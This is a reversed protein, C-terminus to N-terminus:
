DAPEAYEPTVPDRISLIEVEDLQDIVVTAGDYTELNEVPGSQFLMASELVHPDGIVELVYPPELLQGDVEIGGPVDDFSSQAALRYKDNFEMAEAGATRLEQVIDLLHGVSVRGGTETITVRIGPGSVPVLGALINLVEARQETEALAAQRASSETRLDDRRDQLRTLEGQAREATGTLRDLVEILETDRLGAYTDDRQYDEVQVIFAFGLVAMLVAVVLQSRSPKLLANRLRQRGQNEPM